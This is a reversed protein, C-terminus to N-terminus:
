PVQNIATGFLAFDYRVPDLPDIRRLTDTLEIVTHWDRQARTILGLHRAVRDVHVDLPILLQAPQITHWCGFDVGKTAPRVMWRLFMNLRKCTANKDPTAIHKRTRQPVWELSFFLRYFGSLAKGVHADHPTLFQSFATELSRHQRYYHQLFSLFYLTDTYQFTRHVFHEFRVRDKETHGLIYQYPANDMLGFLLKSKDIITKRQGWALVSTWFATIEIDQLLTYQHPIQIPDNEIFHPHEYLDAQANLWEKLNHASM